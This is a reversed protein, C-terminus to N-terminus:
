DIFIVEGYLKGGKELGDIIDILTEPPAQLAGLAQQLRKLEYNVGNQIPTVSELDLVRVPGAEVSFDGSSIAVPDFRVEDGIIVTGKRRNIVVTTSKPKTLVELELIQNIFDVPDSLYQDLIPVQITIPDLASPLMNSVGFEQYKRLTDAVESATGFSAHEAKIVLDFYVQGQGTAPDQRPDSLRSQEGFPNFEAGTTRRRPPATYTFQHKFDFEFQCGNDIIGSVTHLPDDLRIEGSATAFVRMTGSEGGFPGTTLSAHLLRGGRLSTASGFSDVRCNTRSGQRAGTSPVEATVFVLAINQSGLFEDTLEQGAADKPVELGSGSLSRGLARLTAPLDPDGTGSLGVVLGVGRLMIPEQGKVDCLDKIRIQASVATPWLLAVLLFLILSQRQM